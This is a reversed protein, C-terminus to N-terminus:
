SSRRAPGAASSQREAARLYNRHSERIVHPFVAPNVVDLRGPSAALGSNCDAGAIHMRCEPVLVTPVLVTQWKDARRNPGFRELLCTAHLSHSHVPREVFGVG